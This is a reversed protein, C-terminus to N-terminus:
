VGFGESLHCGLLTIEGKYGISFNEDVGVEYEVSFVAVFVFRM